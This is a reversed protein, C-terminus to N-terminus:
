GMQNTLPVGGIDTTPVTLSLGKVRFSYQPLLAASLSIMPICASRDTTMPYNVVTDVSIFNVNDLSYSLRWSIPDNTTTM